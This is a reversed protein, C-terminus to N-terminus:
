PSWTRGADLDRLQRRVLQLNRRATTNDPDLGLARRFCNMAETLMPRGAPGRPTGQTVLSLGLMNWAEVYRDNWELCRRYLVEAAAPMNLRMLTTGGAYLAYEPVSDMRQVRDAHAEADFTARDIRHKIALAANPGSRHLFIVHLADVHVLAWDDSAVLRALLPVLGRRAPVASMMDARLGVVEVGYRSFIKEMEERGLSVNLVLRMADPPYAWTNTLVPVQYRQKSFYHFNSSSTYDTWLRGAPKHEALWRGADVPLTVRSTSAAFRIARRETFWYHSTAVSWALYAAVPIILAGIAIVTWQAIRQFRPGPRRLQRALIAVSLPATVIAYPAINRRMSMAVATMGALILLTAWRRRRVAMAAAIAALVLCLVLGITGKSGSLASAFPGYFEGIFAWPHGRIDGTAGSIRNRRLFFVTQIPLIALRWTWPNALSAAMQAGLVIGVRRLSRTLRGPVHARRIHRRWLWRLGLDVGVAGTLALGLLFYSHLNVFLVQLAILAAMRWAPLARPGQLGALLPWLLWLQGALMAFGLVEPRLTFRAQATLGILVWLTALAIAGARLRLAVMTAAGFIGLILAGQLLVLGAQGLGAHVASFIVQTLWNANAFRYRGQDDVWCGPGAQRDDGLKETVYLFDTSDVIRGEAWFADGYALHYGLDHGTLNRVSLLLAFAGAALLAAVAM